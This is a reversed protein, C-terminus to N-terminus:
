LGDSLLLAPHGRCRLDNAKYESNWQVCRARWSGWTDITVERWGDDDGVGKIGRPTSDGPSDSASLAEQM